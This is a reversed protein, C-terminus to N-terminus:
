RTAFWLDDVGCDKLWSIDKGQGEINIEINNTTEKFSELNEIFLFTSVKNSLDISLKSIKVEDEGIAGLEINYIVVDFTGGYKESFCKKLNDVEEQSPYNEKSIIAISHDYKPTEKMGIITEVVVFLAIIGIIIPIKYYFWINEIKKKVDM